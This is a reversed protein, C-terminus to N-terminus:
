EGITRGNASAIFRNGESWGIEVGNIRAGRTWERFWGEEYVRKQLRGDSIFNSDYRYWHGGDVGIRVSCSM